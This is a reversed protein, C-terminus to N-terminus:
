RQLEDAADANLFVEGARLDDLHSRSATAHRASRRRVRRPRAQSSAFLTVRPENQRTTLSQVAVPEIIAPAVGDVLDEHGLLLEHEIVPVVDEDFYEIGTRGASSSRAHRGRRRRVSVLEDTQGLSTIAATRITHSMTDGTALASAIITTGLM